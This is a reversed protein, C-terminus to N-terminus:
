CGAGSPLAPEAAVHDFCRGVEARFRLVAPRPPRQHRSPGRAVTRRSKGNTGGGRGMFGVGTADHPLGGPAKVCVCVESTLFSGSVKKQYVRARYRTYMNRASLVLWTFVGLRIGSKARHDTDGRRFAKRWWLPHVRQWVRFNLVAGGHSM